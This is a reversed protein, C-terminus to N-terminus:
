THRVVVFRELKVAEGPRIGAKQRAIDVQRRVTDVGDLDPLLLGRRAGRSVIVGYRKPDLQEEGDVPEPTGLVDVSIELEDVEEPAVPDFRPDRVAASVANQVIEEAVSATTPATTGICGRLAGHKHLSVFVGARQGTMEAPLNKPASAQKQGEKLTQELTRRALAVFADEKARRAKNEAARAAKYRPLFRRTEDTAGPAFTAVAYGVGFNDQYCLLGATVARGDLAGAMMLLARLGCEAGAEALAPPISLLADFDGLALAGTIAKDLRPGEPAFGYPGDKKLKHSLDGSAVFAVRKAGAVAAVCQGLQYHPAYSLGSLGVRVLKFDEYAQQLFWLPIASGHDLAPDKEGATGAPLGRRAAEAALADVLAEDYPAKVVTQPAGFRAFNGTGGAGPAIHFWDAYLPMHPSALVVTQPRAAAVFAMAARYAETTKQIKAEEGKGVSPLIIPPHPVCVAAVIPM